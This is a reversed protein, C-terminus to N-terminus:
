AKKVFKLISNKSAIKKLDTKQPDRKFFWEISQYLITKDM